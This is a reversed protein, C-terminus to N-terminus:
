RGACVFLITLIREANHSEIKARKEKCFDYLKMVHPLLNESADLSTSDYDYRLIKSPYAHTLMCATVAITRAIDDPKMKMRVLDQVLAHIELREGDQSKRFLSRKILDQQALIQDVRSLARDPLHYSILSEQISGPDLFSLVRLFSLANPPLKELAWVTSLSHEYPDGLRPLKVGILKRMIPDRDYFVLFRGLNMQFVKILGAIQSIALPVCDLRTALAMSTECTDPSDPVPILRRLLTAATEPDLPGLNTGPGSQRAAPDRSTTIIAGKQGVPWFMRLLDMDDANNFVLLWNREITEESGTEPALQRRKPAKLWELVRQRTAVPDNRLQDSYGLHSAIKTFGKSLQDATEAEVWFVADFQECRSLAYERALETKGIGGLGHVTYSQRMEEVDEARLRNEPLLADDMQRLLDVRGVFRPNRDANFHAPLAPESPGGSPEKSPEEFSRASFRRGAVRATRCLKKFENYM